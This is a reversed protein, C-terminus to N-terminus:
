TSSGEYGRTGGLGSAFAHGLASVVNNGECRCDNVIMNKFILEEEILKRSKSSKSGFYQITEPKMERLETILVTIDMFTALNVLPSGSEDKLLPTNVDLHNNTGNTVIEKKGAGEGNGILRSESM